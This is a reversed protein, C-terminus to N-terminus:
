PLLLGIFPEVDVLDVSGDGNIDGLTLDCDPHRSPYEDPEILALIFPEVDVLDISGDCNLDGHPFRRLYRIDTKIGPGSQWTAEGSDNIDTCCNWFPDDSLQYFKEDRFLWVQWTSNQQHWRHFSIDGRDNLRPGGGRDTFLRMEGSEWIQIASQRELFFNWAVVGNNNIAVGNPQITEDPSVKNIKGDSYLMVDGNPPDVCFDYRVWAIDGRDNIQPNQHEVRASEGDTTIQLVREGDYMFIDEFWGGCGPAMDRGWALHGLNNISTARDQTDNDTLRTLKGDRYIVIELTPEGGPGDPGIGRSWAILGADNIVPGVDQIDDDTLRTLEGNDYLFIEESQRTEGMWSTFVFRAGNNMRPGFDFFSNETVQEVYYGPPIQGSVSIPLVFAGILLVPMLKSM